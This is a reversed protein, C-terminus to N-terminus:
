IIGAQNLAFQLATIYQMQANSYRVQANTFDSGVAHIGQTLWRIQENIFIGQAKALSAVDVVTTEDLSILPRRDRFRARIFAKRDEDQQIEESTYQPLEAANFDDRMRVESATMEDPNYGRESIIADGMPTDTRQVEGNGTNGQFDNM